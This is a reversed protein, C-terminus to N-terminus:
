TVRVHVETLIETRVENNTGTACSVPTGNPSLPKADNCALTYYRCYNRDNYVLAVAENQSELKM